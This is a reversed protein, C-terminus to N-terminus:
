GFSACPADRCVLRQQWRRLQPASAPFRMGYVTPGHQAMELALRAAHPCGADAQRALAAFSEAWPGSALPVSTTPGLASDLTPDPQALAADLLAAYALLAILLTAAVRIAAAHRTSIPLM